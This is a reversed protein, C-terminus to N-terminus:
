AMENEEVVDCWLEPAGVASYRLGLFIGMWMGLLLIDLWAIEM